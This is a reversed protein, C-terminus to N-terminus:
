KNQYSNMCHHQLGIFSLLRFTFPNGNDKVIGHVLTSKFCGKIGSGTNLTGGINARKYWCFAMRVRACVVSNGDVFIWVDENDM